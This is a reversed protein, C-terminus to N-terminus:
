NVNNLMDTLLSSAWLSIVVRVHVHCELVM